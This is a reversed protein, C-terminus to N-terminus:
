YCETTIVQCEESPVTHYKVVFGCFHSLLMDGSHLRAKIFYREM